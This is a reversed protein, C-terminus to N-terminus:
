AWEDIALSVVDVLADGVGESAVFIWPGSGAVCARFMSHERRAKGNATM